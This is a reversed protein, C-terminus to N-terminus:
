SQQYQTNFFNFAAAAIERKSIGFAEQAYDFLQKKTINRHVAERGRYVSYKANCGDKCMAFILAPLLNFKKFCHAPCVEIVCEKQTRDM